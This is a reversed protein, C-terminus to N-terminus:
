VSKRLGFVEVLEIEETRLEVDLFVVLVDDDRIVVLVAGTDEEIKLRSALVSVYADACIFPFISTSGWGREEPFVVLENKARMADASVYADASIFPRLPFNFFCCDCDFSVDFSAKKLRMAVSSVYAVADIFPIDFFFGDFCFDFRLVLLAKKLLSATESVYAEAVM